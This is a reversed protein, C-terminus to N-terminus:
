GARDVRPPARPNSDSSPPTAVPGIDRTGHVIVHRPACAPVAAHAPPESQPASCSPCATEDHTYHLRTGFNEFHAGRTDSGLRAHLAPAMAVTLQAIAIVLSLARKVPATLFRRFRNAYPVRQM